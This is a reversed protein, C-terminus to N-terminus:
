FIDKVAKATVSAKDIRIKFNSLSSEGNTAFFNTSLLKTESFKVTFRIFYPYQDKLHCYFKLSGESTCEAKNEPKSCSEKDCGEIFINKVGTKSTGELLVTTRVGKVLAAQLLPTALTTVLFFLYKM